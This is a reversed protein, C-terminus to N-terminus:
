ESIGYREDESRNYFRLARPEIERVAEAGERSVVVYELAHPLPNEVIALEGRELGAVAEETVLMRQLKRRRTTFHFVEEGKVEVCLHQAIRRLDAAKAQQEAARRRNEERERELAKRQEREKRRAEAAALEEPTLRQERPLPPGKCAGRDRSPARSTGQRSKRKEKKASQAEARAADEESVLGAKLLKDRLSNM